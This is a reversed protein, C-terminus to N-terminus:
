ATVDKQWLTDGSVCNIILSDVSTFCINNLSLWGILALYQDDLYDEIEESLSLLRRQM